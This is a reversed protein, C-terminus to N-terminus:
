VQSEKSIRFISISTLLAALLTFSAAFPFFYILEAIGWALLTVTTVILLKKVLPGTQAPADSLLWLIAAILLLALSATYGYGEFYDGMSHVAGMFPFRSGIMQDIIQQKAPDPSHKWGSHGITHGVDHFLMLVSAIRLLIKPGM